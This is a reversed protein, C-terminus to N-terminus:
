GFWESLKEESQQKIEPTINNKVAKYAIAIASADDTFGLVPIIDPILDAPLIFYGLAGIIIAKDRATVFDSKLVDYIFWAPRVVNEGAKAFVSGVKELFSKDSYYTEYEKLEDVNKVNKVNKEDM